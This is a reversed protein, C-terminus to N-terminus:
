KLINEEKHCKQIVVMGNFGLYIYRPMLLKTQALNCSIDM